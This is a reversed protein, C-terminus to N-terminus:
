GDDREIRLFRGGELRVRRSAAAFEALDGTVRAFLNAWTPQGEPGTIAAGRDYIYLIEGAPERAMQKEGGANWWYCVDGPLARHVQNEPPCPGVADARVFVEPGSYMGHVARGEIPLQELVRAITAPAAEELLEATVSIADPMLTLRIRRPM